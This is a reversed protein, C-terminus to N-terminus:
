ELVEKLQNSLWYETEENENLCACLIVAPSDPEFIDKMFYNAVSAATVSVINGALTKYKIGLTM